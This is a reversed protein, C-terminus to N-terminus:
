ESLLTRVSVRDVKETGLKPLADHTVVIRAPVEYSQLRGRCWEVLDDGDAARDTRVLAAAIEGRRRDQVGVVCVERVAPHALLVAEINLPAINMGSSKIMEKLRGTYRFRNGRGIALDGTKLFGDEDFVEANRAADGCYGPPGYARVRVEGESGPPVDLGTNPNVIRVEVNPLAEVWSDVKLARDDNWHTLACTGYLETMGYGACAADMGLTDIAFEMDARAHGVRGKRLTALKSPRYDAVETLQRIMEGFMFVTTARHAEILSVASGPEFREQLVVTGGHSLTDLLAQVCGFSFCLPISLLTVDSRDLGLRQGAHFTNAVLGDHRLLVAKPAGSSGSTYLQYGHDLPNSRSAGELPPSSMVETWEEVQPFGGDRKPFRRGEESTESSRGFDPLRILRSLQPAAAPDALVSALDAEYAHTLFRGAYILVSSGSHPLAYRLEKEGFWTSLAVLTAGAKAIGFIAIVWEACNPALIAVRDGHKVGRDVLGRAFVSSVADLDAYTWSRHGDILAPSTDFRRALEGALSGLDEAARPSALAM